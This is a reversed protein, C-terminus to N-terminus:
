KLIKLLIHKAKNYEYNFMLITLLYTALAIVTGGIEQFKISWYIPMIIFIISAVILTIYHLRMTLIIKNGTEQKEIIGYIYPIFSNRGKFVPRIKFSNITLKGVFLKLSKSYNDFRFGLYPEVNENLSALLKDATIASYNTLKKYPLLLM